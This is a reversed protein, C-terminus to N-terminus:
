DNPLLEQAAKARLWAAFQMLQGVSVPSTGDIHPVLDGKWFGMVNGFQDLIQVEGLLRSDEDGAFDVGTFSLDGIASRVPQEPLQFTM